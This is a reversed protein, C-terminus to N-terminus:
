FHTQRDKAAYIEATNEIMKELSFDALVSKRLARSHERTVGPHTILFEMAHYLDRPKESQVLIGSKMDEVVEPIGGVATAVVPLGALGAELLVYGLAESRSPLLFIDFAKLYESAKDLHGMFLVHEGIDLDFALKELKKREEGDGIIVYLIKKGVNRTRPSRILDHIARLALDHGKVHHLEAVTGIWVTSSTTKPMKAINTLVSRANTKSYGPEAHIGNKIITIKDRVFPWGMVSRKTAESVTITVDSLIITIWYIIKIFARSLLSRNENFAWGHATFVIRPVRAIRGALAGLGGIKSSNLHVIDPKEEKFLRILEKFVTFDDKISVDRGLRDMKKVSIGGKALMDILPGDGGCVVSVSYKDNPLGTALDYVYRQAGGWNSKTIVHLIKLKDM